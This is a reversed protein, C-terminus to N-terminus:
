TYIIYNMVITPQVNMHVAGTGSNQTTIGTTAANASVATTAAAATIGTVAANITAGGSANIPFGGGGTSSGGGNYAANHSHGHGPDSLAHTHSPNNLAHTHGADTVAHNHAPMQALSIGFGEVGGVAGLAAGNVGSVATTLRNAATGLMNDLGAVIRGRIDPIGFTTTGNGGYTVGLIAALQPYDAINLIQGACMLSGTPATSGAFMTVTGTLGVALTVLKSTM